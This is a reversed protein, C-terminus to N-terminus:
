ATVLSTTFTLTDAYQGVVATNWADAAVNVTFNAEATTVPGFQASADALSYALTFEKGEVPKFKMTNTGDNTVEVNLKHNYLLHADVSYTITNAEKGWPIENSAPITISYKEADKGAEDTTLTNIDVTGTQNDKDLTAAFSPVCIAFMMVLTLVMAIIKKM